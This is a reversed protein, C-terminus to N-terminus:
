PYRPPQYPINAQRRDGNLDAWEITFTVGLFRGGETAVGKFTNVAQGTFDAWRPRELLIFENQSADITVDRAISGDAANFLQFTNREDRKPAVIWQPHHIPAAREADIRSQVEDAGEAKAAAVQRDIKPGTTLRLSRLFDWARRIPKGLRPLRAWIGVIIVLILGGIVTAALQNANVWTWFDTWWDV